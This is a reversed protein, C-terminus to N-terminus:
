QTLFAMIAEPVAEETLMPAHGVNPVTLLELRTARDQMAQVCAESLLDTLAGRILLLPVDRLTEFLSWLASSEAGTDQQSLAESIKPDYDAIIQNSRSSMASGRLPQGSRLSGIRSSRSVSQSVYATAEDWDDFPGAVGVYSQIRELGAAAIDPGIDNIVARHILHPICRM